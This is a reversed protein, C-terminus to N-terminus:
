AGGRELLPLVYLAVTVCLVGALAVVQDRDIFVKTGAYQRNMREATLWGELWAQRTSPSGEENAKKDLGISYAHAGRVFAHVQPVSLLADDNVVAVKTVPEPLPVSALSYSM